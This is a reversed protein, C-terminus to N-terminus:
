MAGSSISYTHIFNVSQTVSDIDTVESSESFLRMSCQVQMWFLTGDKLYCHFPVEVCIQPITFLTLDKSVGEFMWRVGYEDVM